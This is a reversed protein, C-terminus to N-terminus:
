LVTKVDSGYGFSAEAIHFTGLILVRAQETAEPQVALQSRLPALSPTDPYVHCGERERQPQGNDEPRNWRARDQTQRSPGNM